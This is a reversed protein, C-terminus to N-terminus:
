HIRSSTASAASLRSRRRKLLQARASNLDFDGFRIGCLVSRFKYALRLFTAMPIKKCYAPVASGVFDDIANERQARGIRGVAACQREQRQPRAIRKQAIKVIM